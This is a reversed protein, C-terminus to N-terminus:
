LIKKIKEIQEKLKKPYTPSGQSIWDDPQIKETPSSWRKQKLNGSEDYKDEFWKLPETVIAGIVKSWPSNFYQKATSKDGKKQTKEQEGKNKIDKVIFPDIYVKNGRKDFLSIKVDSEITGLKTGKKVKQGISVDIKKIGCYELDYVENDIMHKIVIRGQCSPNYNGRSIIGDVPSKITSNKDKSLIVSGYQTTQGKGFDGYIKEENMKLISSLLQAFGKNGFLYGDNSSPSSGGTSALSQLNKTIDDSSLDSSQTTDSSPSSKLIDNSLIDSVEIKEMYNVPDVKRGDKKLTFHLHPGSSRGRGYDNKGGGSLGVVDGRKVVDGKKVNIQKMHCFRSWLGDAYKIDITGGCPHRNAAVDEVVGDLPAKVATGSPVPIDTGPHIYGGRRVQNFNGRFGPKIPVPAMFTAENLNGISEKNLLASGLTEATKQNGFYYQSTGSTSQGLSNKTDVAGINTLVKKILNCSDNMLKRIDGNQLAIHVHAPWNPDEKPKGIKGIFDGQLIKEGKKIKPGVSSLHTYFITDDDSKLTISYGYEGLQKNYPKSNVDVVTGSDISYVNTGESSQIDWANRSTWESRGLQAHSQPGGGWKCFAGNFIHSTTAQELITKTKLIERYVRDINLLVNDM